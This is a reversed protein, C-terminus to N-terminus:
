ATEFGEAIQWVGKGERTEVVAVLPRRSGGCAVEFDLRVLGPAPVEITADSPPGCGPSAPHAWALFDVVRDRPAGSDDSHQRNGEAEIWLALLAIAVSRLASKASADMKTGAQVLRAND